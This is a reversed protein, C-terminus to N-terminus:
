RCMEHRDGAEHKLARRRGLHTQPEVSLRAVAGGWGAEEAVARVQHECHPLPQEVGGHRHLNQGEAWSARGKRVGRGEEDPFRKRLRQAEPGWPPSLQTGHATNVTAKQAWAHDKHTERTFCHGAEMEDSDVETWWVKPTMRQGPGHQDEGYQELKQIHATRAPVLSLEKFTTKKKTGLVPTSFSM